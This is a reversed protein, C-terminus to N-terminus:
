RCVESLWGNFGVARASLYETLEGVSGQGVVFSTKEVWRGAQCAIVRLGWRGDSMLCTQFYKSDNAVNRSQFVQAPGNDDLCRNVAYADYGHKVISHNRYSVTVLGGAVAALIIALLPLWNFPRHYTDVHITM